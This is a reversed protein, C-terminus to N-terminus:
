TSDMVEIGKYTATAVVMTNIVTLVLVVLAIQRTRPKNFDIVPASLSGGAAIRRRQRWVGIPILILGVVFLTPIILFALIGFYPGAHFGLQEVTFLTVFVAASATAISIGLLSLPSRLMQITPRM